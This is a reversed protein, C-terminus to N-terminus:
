RAPLRTLRGTNRNLTQNGKHTKSNATMDVM